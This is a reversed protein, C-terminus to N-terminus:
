ALASSEIHTRRISVAYIVNATMFETADAGAGVITISGYFEGPGGVLDTIVLDGGNNTFVLQGANSAFASLDLRDGTAPDAGWTFDTIVVEGIDAGAFVYVERAANGTFDVDTTGDIGDSTAGISYTIYEGTALSGFDAGSIDAILNTM